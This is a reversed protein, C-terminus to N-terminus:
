KSFRYYSQNLYAVVDAKEQESFRHKTLTARTSVLERLQRLNRVESRGRPLEHVRPYHCDFCYSEYLDRGRQADQAAAATPLLAVLVLVCSRRM